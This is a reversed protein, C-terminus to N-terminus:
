TLSLTECGYLMVPLIITIYIKIKLNKLPQRNSLLTQISYYNGAKLRRKIEEHISNQNTLSSSLYKSTRMKEYLNIVIMIHEDAMMDGDRGVAVHM